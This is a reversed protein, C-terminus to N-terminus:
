QNTKKILHSIMDLYEDNERFGTRVDMIEGESFAIMTPVGIVNYRSALNKNNDFNIASFTVKNSYKENLTKFTELLIICLPCWDAWFLALMSGQEPIKDFDTDDLRLPKM